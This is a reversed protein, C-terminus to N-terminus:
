HRMLLTRVQDELAEVRQELYIREYRPAPEAVMAAPANHGNPAVWFQAMTLGMAEVIRLLVDVRVSGRRWMDYYSGKSLKMREYLWRDPLGRAELHADVLSKVAQLTM